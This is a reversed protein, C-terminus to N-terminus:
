QTGNVRCTTRTRPPCRVPDKEISFVIVEKPTRRVDGRTKYVVQYLISRRMMTFTLSLISDAIVLLSVPTASVRIFNYYYYNVINHIRLPNFFLNFITKM